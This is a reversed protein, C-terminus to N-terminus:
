SKVQFGMRRGYEWFCRSLDQKMADHVASMASSRNRPRGFYLAEFLLTGSPRDLPNLVLLIHGCSTSDLRMIGIVKQTRMRKAVM